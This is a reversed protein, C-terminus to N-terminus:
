IFQKNFQFSPNIKKSFSFHWQNNGLVEGLTNVQDKQVNTLNIYKTFFTKNIEFDKDSTLMNHGPLLESTWDSAVAGPTKMRIMQM